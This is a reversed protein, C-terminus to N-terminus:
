NPPPPIQVKATGAKVAGYRGSRWGREVDVQDCILKDDSTGVATMTCCLVWPHREGAVWREYQAIRVGRHALGIRNGIREHICVVTMTGLVSIEVSAGIAPLVRRDGSREEAVIIVPNDAPVAHVPM